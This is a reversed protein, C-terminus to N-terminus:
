GGAKETPGHRPQHKTSPTMSTRPSGARTAVAGLPRPPVLWITASGARIHVYRQRELYSIFGAPYASAGQSASVVAATAPLRHELSHADIMGRMSWFYDTVPARRALYAYEFQDTLVRENQTTERDLVHVATNVSSLRLIGLGAQTPGINLAAAWLALLALGGLVVLRPARRIIRVLLPAALLAAFPVALVFYHYYVESAFIFLGGLAFGALVWPPCRYRVAAPAALPNLLLLFSLVAAVRHGLDAHPRHFLQWGFSQEYLARFEHAFPAFAFADTVATAAIVIMARRPAALVYVPLFLLAPYKFWIALGLCGGALAAGASSRLSLLLLLGALALATVLPDQGIRVAALVAVPSAGYLLGAALATRRGYLLTGIRWVLLANMSDILLVVMRASPWWGEVLPQLARFLVLVGPPHFFMFDRYPTLGHSFDRSLQLIVFEDPDYTNATLAAFLLRLGLACSLVLLLDRWPASRPADRSRYSPPVGLNSPGPSTDPSRDLLQATNGESM